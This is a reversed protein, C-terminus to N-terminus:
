KGAVIFKTDAGTAVGIVKLFYVGNPLKSVDIVGANEALEGEAVATGLVNCISYRASKSGARAVTIFNAAPNPYVSINEDTAKEAVSTSACPPASSFTIKGGGMYRQKAPIIGSGPVNPPGIAPPFSGASFIDTFSTRYYSTDSLATTGAPTITGLISNGYVYHNTGAMLFLGHYPTSNTTENGVWNLSDSLVSAGPVMIIGYLAAHNRYFTTFPGTPGWTSDVVITNVINSEFLNAFSYHGHCVLDAGADNPVETWYGNVVYNYGAVNGNAGQKVIIAHRLHDFVNNEVLCQGTHQIMTVGYGRTSAGDYAYADHFYCGDITIDTCADLSVHAGASQSSEVGKIWCNMANRFSIQYGSTPMVTDARIIKMDEIGVFVRPVWKRIRPMLSPTYTIRLPHEFTLYSGSIATIRVIQGVCNEAWSIPVADWAGNTEEIEAYDGASFGAASAVRIVTTDKSFGELINRFTDAQDAQADICNVAAGGLNFVLMAPDHCDGRLIVSDPLTVTSRILYKGPPFFVIGAHGALSAIASAIATADDHVSDGYAGFGTVNIENAIVPNTTPIGAGAWLVQKGAPIVQATATVTVFLLFAIFSLKNV